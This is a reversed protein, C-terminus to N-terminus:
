FRVGDDPRFVVVAPTATATAIYMGGEPDYIGGGRAVKAAWARLKADGRGQRGSRGM